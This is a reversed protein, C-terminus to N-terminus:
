QVVITGVMVPHLTCFYKYTGPQSIVLTYKDGTDLPQSAIPSGKDVGKVTHPADDQNTWVLEAGVPVILTQPSFNFNGITISAGDKSDPVAGAHEGALVVGSDAVVSLSVLAIGALLHQRLTTIVKSCRSRAGSTCLIAM